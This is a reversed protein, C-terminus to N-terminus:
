LIVISWNNLSKQEVLLFKRPCESNTFRVRHNNSCTFFILLKFFLVHSIGSDFSPIPGIFVRDRLFIGAPESLFVNSSKDETRFITIFERDLVSRNVASAMYVQEYSSRISFLTPDVKSRKKNKAPGSPSPM